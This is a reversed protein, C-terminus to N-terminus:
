AFARVTGLESWSPPQAAQYRLIWVLGQDTNHKVCRFLCYNEAERLILREEGSALAGIEMQERLKGQIQHAWETQTLNFWQGQRIGFLEEQTVKWALDAWQDLSLAQKLTFGLATPFPTSPITVKALVPRDDLFPAEPFAECFHAREGMDLQVARMPYLFRLGERIQENKREAVSWALAKAGAGTLVRFAQRTSTPLEVGQCLADAVLLVSAWQIVVVGANVIAEPVEASVDWEPSALTDFATELQQAVTEVSPEVVGKQSLTVMSPVYRGVEALLLPSLDAVNERFDRADQWCAPSLNLAM